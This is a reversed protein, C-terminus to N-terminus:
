RRSRTWPKGAEQLASQELYRYYTRIICGVFAFGGLVAAFIPRTGLWRDPGFYGASALLLPIVVFEIALAMGDDLGRAMEDDLGRVTSRDPAEV